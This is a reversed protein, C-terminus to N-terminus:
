LFAWIDEHLETCWMSSGGVACVGIGLCICTYVCDRFVMEVLQQDSTKRNVHLFAAYLYVSASSNVHPHTCVPHGTHVHVSTSLSVLRRTGHSGPRVQTRATAYFPDFFLLFSSEEAFATIDFVFPKTIPGDAQGSYFLSLSSAHDCAPIRLICDAFCCLAAMATIREADTSRSNPLSFFTSTFHRALCHLLRLLEIQTDRRLVASYWFSRSVM